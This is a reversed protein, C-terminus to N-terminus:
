IGNIGKKIGNFLGQGINSLGGVIGSVLNETTQGVTKGVSVVGQGITQTGKPM